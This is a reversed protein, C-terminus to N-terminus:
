IRRRWSWTRDFELQGVIQGLLLVGALLALGGVGTVKGAGNRASRAHMPLIRCYGIASLVVPADTGLLVNMLLM